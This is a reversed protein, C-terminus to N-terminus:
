GRIGVIVTPHATGTSSNNDARFRIYHPGTLIYKSVTTGDGVNLEDYNVNDFNTTADFSTQINIDIDSSDNNANCTSVQILIDKANRCDIVGGTDPVENTSTTAIGSWTLSTTELRYIGQKAM